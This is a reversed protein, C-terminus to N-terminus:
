YVYNGANLNSDRFFEAIAQAAYTIGLSKRSAYSGKANGGM